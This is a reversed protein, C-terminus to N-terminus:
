SGLPPQARQALELAQEPFWQGAPPNAIGWEPDVPGRCQGDSEGPVKIWLYADLLAVNTGATPRVGLGRGPPNCWELEGSWPGRGNRSTDIVFHTRPAAGGLNEDYWRETHEWSSPDDPSVPGLPSAYQSACADYRGLRWGGDDPNGAFAICKSIWAGYQECERAPCFNSVNLFFGRARTVGAEVLRRAIEGVALWRSHTGDLYVSAGPQRALRDVAGNLQAYREEDTFPYDPGPGGCDSPLLGLGDPELVVVARGDGLGSAFGDIWQLYEETTRAGGASYGGCDRGPINYAVLVPVAHQRAAAEMVAEVRDRAEGATGRTIWVATPVDAMAAILDAEADRGAARLDDLQQAAGPRPGPAYFRSRRDLGQRASPLAGSAGEEPPM